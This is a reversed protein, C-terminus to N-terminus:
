AGTEGFARRRRERSNTLHTRMAARAADADQAAIADCISEHETHVRRLYALTAGDPANAPELRSRPIISPGLTALLREFHANHTARAVESHFAFDPKVADRGAEVAASFDALAQRMRAPNDASRRQAALGAAETELGIRLELVAVVDRLTELRKSPIRFAARATPEAVFSGIGHRTHALGAAQLHSLAERVVTRSVGFEAMLQGETPLKTGARWEQKEIRQSLSQALAQALSPRRAATSISPNAM